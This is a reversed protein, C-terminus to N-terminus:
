RARTNDPSPARRRPGFLKLQAPEIGQERAWKTDCLFRRTSRRWLPVYAIHICVLIAALAIVVASRDVVAFGIPLAFTWAVWSGYIRSRRAAAEIEESSMHACIQRVEDSQFPSWTRWDM